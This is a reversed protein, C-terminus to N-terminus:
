EKNDCKEGKYERPHVGYSQGECTHIFNAVGLNYAM